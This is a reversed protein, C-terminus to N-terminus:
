NAVYDKFAEVLKQLSKNLGTKEYIDLLSVRLSNNLGIKFLMEGCM